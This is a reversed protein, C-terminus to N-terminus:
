RVQTGEREAISDVNQGVFPEGEPGIALAIWGYEIQFQILDLKKFAQHSTLREDLLAIPRQKNFAKSFVGRLAIQDGFSLREGMLEVYSRRLLRADLDRPAPEYHARVTFDRFRRDGGVLEQICLTLSVTNNHFDVRIPERDAFHIWVDSPLDDPIVSRDMHFTDALEQYLARLEIQRGALQLQNLLNNVSSQHLQLSMLSASPAWPRTQAATLQDDAALRYHAILRSETTAVDTVQPNLELENLPSLVKEQVQKEAALLRTHIEDDFRRRLHSQLKAEAERNALPAEVDHQQLAMSRAFLNILPVSDYDTEFDALRNDLSTAVDSRQVFLKDGDHLFQKRALFRSRGQSHFTAPGKRATTRSNVEGRAELGLRLRASDPLLRIRLDTLVNSEGSVDAGRIHENVPQNIQSPPPLFRNLLTETVAIRMGPGRYEAEITEALERDAALPSRALQVVAAHIKEAEQERGVAEYRQLEFLLSEYHQGQWAWRRLEEVIAQIQPRALAEQQRQDFATRDLRSLVRTAVTLRARPDSTTGARATQWLRPLELFERWSKAYPEQNLLADMADLKQLMVQMDVEVAGADHSHMAARQTGRWIAVNRRLTDGTAHMRYQDMSPPLLAELRPTQEYLSELRDIAASAATSRLSTAALLEHIALQVQSRWTMIEHNLPLQDLRALLLHPESWIPSLAPPPALVARQWDFLERHAERAEGPPPTDDYASEADPPSDAIPLDLPPNLPLKTALPPETEARRAPSALSGLSAIPDDGHRAHSEAGAAAATIRAPPLGAEGGALAVPGGIRGGLSEVVVLEWQVALALLCIALLAGLALVLPWTRFNERPDSSMVSVHLM